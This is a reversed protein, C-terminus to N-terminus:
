RSPHSYTAVVSRAEDAGGLDEEDLESILSMKRLAIMATAAVSVRTAGGATSSKRTAMAATLRRDTRRRLLLSSFNLTM